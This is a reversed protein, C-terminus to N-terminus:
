YLNLLFTKSMKPCLKLTFIGPAMNVWLYNNGEQEQTVETKPLQHANGGHQILQDLM